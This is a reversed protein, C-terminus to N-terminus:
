ELPQPKLGTLDNVDEPDEGVSWDTDVALTKANEIALKIASQRIELTFDMPQANIFEVDTIGIWGFIARLYPELFDYPRFPSNESYDGGRSTVCVMKKGKVLGEPQGQENYRFLYNPQVIADIYYKLAYPVGFNWM